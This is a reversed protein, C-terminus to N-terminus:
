VPAVTANAVATYQYRSDSSGAALRLMGDCVLAGDLITDHQLASLYSGRKTDGHASYVMQVSGNVTFSSVSRLDWSRLTHSNSYDGVLQPMSALPIVVLGIPRVDGTVGNNPAVEGLSAINDAGGGALRVERLETTITNPFAGTLRGSVSSTIHDMYRSDFVVDSLSKGHDEEMFLGAGQRGLDFLMSKLGGTTSAVLKSGNAAANNGGTGTKANLSTVGEDTIGRLPITQDNIRVQLDKLLIPPEDGGLGGSTARSRRSISTNSADPRYRFRLVVASVSPENVGSFTLSYQSSSNLAPLNAGNAAPILSRAFVFRKHALVMPVALEIPPANPTPAPLAMKVRGDYLASIQAVTAPNQIRVISATIRPNVITVAPNQFGSQVKLTGLIDEVVRSVTYQFVLAEGGSSLYGIPILSSAKCFLTCFASLPIAYSVTGGRLGIRALAAPASPARYSRAGNVANCRELGSKGGALGYRGPLRFTGARDAAGEGEVSSCLLRTSYWYSATQEASSPLADFNASGPVTCSVQEFFPCGWLPRPIADISGFPGPPKAETGETNAVDDVEDVSVIVDFTLFCSDPLLFQAKNLNALSISFSDGQAFDRKSGQPLYEIIETTFESSSVVPPTQFSLYREALAM